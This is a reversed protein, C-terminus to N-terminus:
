GFFSWNGECLEPSYIHIYSRRPQKGLRYIPSCVYCVWGDMWGGGNMWEWQEWGSLRARMGTFELFWRALMGIGIGIGDDVM